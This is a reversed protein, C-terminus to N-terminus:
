PAAFYGMTELTQLASRLHTEILQQQKQDPSSLSTRVFYALYALALKAQLGGMAFLRELSGVPVPRRSLRDFIEKLREDAVPESSAREDAPLAALLEAITPGM